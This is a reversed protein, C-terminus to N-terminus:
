APPPSGQAAQGEIAARLQAMEERLHKKQLPGLGLISGNFAVETQGDGADVLEVEINSPNRTAGFGVKTV